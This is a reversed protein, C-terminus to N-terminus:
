KSYQDIFVLVVLYSKYQTIAKNGHVQGHRVTKGVIVKFLRVFTMRKELAMERKYM